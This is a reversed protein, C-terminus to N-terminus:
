KLMRALGCVYKRKREGDKLKIAVFSGPPWNWILPAPTGPQLKTMCAEVFRVEQTFRCVM